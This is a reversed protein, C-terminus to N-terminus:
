RESRKADAARQRDEILLYDGNKLVTRSYADKDDARSLIENMESKM